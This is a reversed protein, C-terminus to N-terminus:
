VVNKYLRKITDLAFAVSVLIMVFYIYIGSALYLGSIPALGVYDLISMLVARSFMLIGLGVIFFMKHLQKFYIIIISCVIIIWYGIKTFFSYFINNYDFLFDIFGINPVHKIYDASSQMVRDVRLPICPRNERIGYKEYHDIATILGKDVADRVDPNCSLYFSQNLKGSLSNKVIDSFEIKDVTKKASNIAFFKIDNIDFDNSIRVTCIFGINGGDFQNIDSRTISPIARCFQEDGVRGEVYSYKGNKQSFAWGYFLVRDGSLRMGDVYGMNTLRNNYSYDSYNEQKVADVIPSLPFVKSNLKNRIVLINETENASYFQRIPPSSFDRILILSKILNFYINVINLKDFAADRPLMHMPKDICALIKVDCANDIESALRKMYESIDSPTRYGASWIGDLLAFMLYGVPMDKDCGSLTIDKGQSKISDCGTLIWGKYQDSLVFSKIENAAPSVEFLKIWAINPTSDYLKYPLDLRQISGYGEQFSKDKFTNLVLSNYAVFNLLYHVIFLSALISTFRLLPKYVRTISSSRYFTFLSIIIYFLILPAIWIGEERLELISFCSVSAILVDIKSVCNDIIQQYIKFLSVAFLLIVQPYIM